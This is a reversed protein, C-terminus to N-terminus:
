RNREYVKWEEQPQLERHLKKSDYVHSPSGIAAADSLQLEHYSKLSDRVWGSYDLYEFVSFNKPMFLAKDGDHIFILRPQNRVVDNEIDDLFQREEV